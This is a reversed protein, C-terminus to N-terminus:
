PNDAMFKCVASALADPAQEQLFHGVGEITVHDQKKAGPVTEQFRVH